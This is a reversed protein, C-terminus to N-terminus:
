AMIIYPPVSTHSWVNIEVIIPTSCNTEGEPWKWGEGGESPFSNSIGIPHSHISRLAM